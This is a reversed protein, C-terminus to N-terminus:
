DLLSASARAGSEGVLLSVIGACTTVGSWSGPGHTSSVQSLRLEKSVLPTEPLTSSGLGVLQPPLGPSGACWAAEGM